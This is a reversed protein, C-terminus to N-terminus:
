YHDIFMLPLKIKWYKNGDLIAWNKRKSVQYKYCLCILINANIRLINSHIHTAHWEVTIKSCCKKSTIFSIYLSSTFCANRWKNFIGSQSSFVTLITKQCRLDLLTYFYKLIGFNSNSHVVIPAWSVRKIEPFTSSKKFFAWTCRAVM